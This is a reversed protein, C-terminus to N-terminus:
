QELRNMDLTVVSIQEIEKKQQNKMVIINPASIKDM